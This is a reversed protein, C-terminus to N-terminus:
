DAGGKRMIVKHAKLRLANIRIFGEAHTQDYGGEVDMSSPMPRKM